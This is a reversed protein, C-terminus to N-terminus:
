SDVALTGVKKNWYNLNSCWFAQTLQLSIINAPVLIVLNPNCLQVIRLFVPKM